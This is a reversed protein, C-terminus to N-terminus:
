FRTVNSILIKLRIQRLNVYFKELFVSGQNILATKKGYSRHYEANYGLYRYPKYGVAVGPQKHYSPAPHASFIM